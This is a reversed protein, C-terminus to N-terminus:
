NDFGFVIRVGKAYSYREVIYEAWKLFLSCHERPKEPWKVKIYNWDDPGEIDGLDNLVAHVVLGGGVMQSYPYPPEAHDWSEYRDRTIWGSAIYEEDWRPDALLERLDWWSCTHGDGDVEAWWDTISHRGTFEPDNHDEVCWSECTENIEYDKPLGRAQAFPKVLGHEGSRGGALIDFLVYNRSDEIPAVTYWQGDESYRVQVWGHIDTGM